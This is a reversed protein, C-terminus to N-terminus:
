ENFQEKLESIEEPTYPTKRRSRKRTKELHVLFDADSQEKITYKVKHALLRRVEPDKEKKMRKELAAARPLPDLDSFESIIAKLRDKPM